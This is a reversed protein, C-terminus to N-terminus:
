KRSQLIGSIRDLAKKNFLKEAESTKQNKNADNMQEAWLTLEGILERKTKALHGGRLAHSIEGCERLEANIRTLAANTEAIEKSSWETGFLRHRNIREDKIKIAEARDKLLSKIRLDNQIIQDESM